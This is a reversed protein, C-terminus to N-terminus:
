LFAHAADAFEKAASLWIYASIGNQICIDVRVFKFISAYPNLMRGILNMVLQAASHSDDEIQAIRPFHTLCQTPWCDQPGYDVGISCRPQDLDISGKYIGIRLISKQDHRRAVYPLGKSICIGLM